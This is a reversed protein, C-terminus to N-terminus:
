GSEGAGLKQFLKRALILMNEVERGEFEVPLYRAAIYAAKSTKSM